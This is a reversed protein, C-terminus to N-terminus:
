KNLNLGCDFMFKALQDIYCYNITITQSTLSKRSVELEHARAIQMATKVTIHYGAVNIDTNTSKPDPTNNENALQLLEPMTIIPLNFQHAMNIKVDSPKNGIVLYNVAPTPRDTAIIGLSNLQEMVIKRPHEFTGSLCVSLM